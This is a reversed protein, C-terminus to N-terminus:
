KKTRNISLTLTVLVHGINPALPRLRPLSIKEYQNDKENHHLPTLEPVNNQKLGPGRVTSEM